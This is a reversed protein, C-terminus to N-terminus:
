QITCHSSERERRLRLRRYKIYQIMPESLGQAELQPVPQDAMSVMVDLQSPDLLPVAQANRIRSDLVNATYARDFDALFQRYIHELQQAIVPGSKSPETSNTGPFQVFGMRGGIVSWLDKQQVKEEGGEVMVLTHLMHLDIPRNNVTLPRRDIKIQKNNCFTKFALEFRGKELPPIVQLIPNHGGPQNAARQVQQAQVLGTFPHPSSLLIGVMTAFYPHLFPHFFPSIFSHNFLLTYITLSIIFSGSSLVLLCLLALFLYELIFIAFTSSVGIFSEKLQRIFQCFPVLCIFPLSYHILDHLAILITPSSSRKFYNRRCALAMDEVPVRMKRDNDRLQGIWDRVFYRLGAQSLLVLFRRLAKTYAIYHEGSRKQSQLFELFSRHYVSISEGDVRQPSFEDQM